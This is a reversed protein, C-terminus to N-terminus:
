TMQKGRIAEPQYRIAEPQYRIAEPQYRIAEPQYRIAEPQYRIAEPQYWMAEPQYRTAEPQYWIAEPQYRIGMKCVKNLWMICGGALRNPVACQCKLQSQGKLPYLQVDDCIRNVIGLCM